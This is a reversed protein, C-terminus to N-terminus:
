ARSCFRFIFMLRIHEIDISIEILAITRNESYNKSNKEVPTGYM